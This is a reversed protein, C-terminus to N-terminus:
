TVKSFLLNNFWKLGIFALVQRFHQNLQAEASMNITITKTGRRKQKLQVVNSVLKWVWEILQMIIGKLFQYLIDVIIGKHINFLCYHWMFCKVLYVWNDSSLLVNELQQCKIQRKTEKYTHPLYPKETLNKYKLSPVQYITCHQQSKVSILLVQEKYDAMIGCMIPYYQQM